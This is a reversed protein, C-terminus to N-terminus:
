VPKTPCAPVPSPTLGASSTLDQPGVAGLVTVLIAVAYLVSVNPICRVSQVHISFNLSQNQNFVQAHRFDIIITYLFWLPSFFVHLLYIQMSRVATMDFSVDNLILSHSLVVWTIFESTETPFARLKWPSYFWSRNKCILNFYENYNWQELVILWALMRGEATCVRVVAIWDATRSSAQHCRARACVGRFPSTEPAQEQRCM